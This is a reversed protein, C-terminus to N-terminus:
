GNFLKYILIALILLILGDILLEYLSFSYTGFLTITTNKLGGFFMDIFAKVDDM